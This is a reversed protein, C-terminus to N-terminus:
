PADLKWTSRDAEEPTSVLAVPSTINKRLGMSDLHPGHLTEHERCGMRGPVQLSPFAICHMKEIPLASFRVSLTCSIPM